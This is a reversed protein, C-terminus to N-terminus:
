FSDNLMRKSEMSVDSLQDELSRLNQELAIRTNRLNNIQEVIQTERQM